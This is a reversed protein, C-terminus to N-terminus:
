LLHSCLFKNIIWKKERRREHSYFNRGLLCQVCFLFLSFDDIEWSWWFLSWCFHYFCTFNSLNWQWIKPLFIKPNYQYESSLFVLPFTFLLRASCGWSTSLVPHLFSIPPYTFGTEITSIRCDLNAASKKM